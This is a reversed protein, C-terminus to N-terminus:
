AVPPARMGSSSFFVLEPHNPCGSCYIYQVSSPNFFGTGTSLIGSGFVTSHNLDDNLLKSIDLTQEKERKTTMFQALLPKHWIKYQHFNVLSGIMIWLVSIAWLCFFIKKIFRFIKM